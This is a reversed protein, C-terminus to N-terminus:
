KKKLSVSKQRIPRLAFSKVEYLSEPFNAQKRQHVVKLGAQVFLDRLHLESRMISMDVEDFVFGDSSLNDKIVVVGGDVLASCCRCLFSVVDEDTLYIIAWQVWIVSYRGDEGKFEEMGGLIRRGVKDGGVFRRSEDLFESSSELLDVTGFLPVLLFRAVRGIGAGVDLAVGDFDVNKLSKLFKRSSEVDVGHLYGYGGMMTDIDGPKGTYHQVTKEYWGSGEFVERTSAYKRGSTDVGQYDPWFDAKISKTNRIGSIGGGSDGDGADEDGGEVAM